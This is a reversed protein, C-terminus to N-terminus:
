GCRAALFPFSPLLSSSPPFFPGFARLRRQRELEGSFFFADTMKREVVPRCQM